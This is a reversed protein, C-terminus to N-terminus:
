KKKLTGAYFRSALHWFRNVNETFPSLLIGGRAAFRDVFIFFLVKLRLYNSFFRDVCFLFRLVIFTSSGVSLVYHYKKWFIVLSLGYHNISRCVMVVIVNQSRYLFISVDIWSSFFWLDRLLQEFSTAIRYDVTSPKLSLIIYLFPFM